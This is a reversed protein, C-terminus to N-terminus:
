FQYLSQYFTVNIGTASQIWQCLYMQVAQDPTKPRSAQTILQFCFPQCISVFVSDNLCRQSKVCVFIYVIISTLLEHAFVGM